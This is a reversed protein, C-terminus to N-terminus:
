NQKTFVKRVIKFFNPFIVFFITISFGLWTLVFSLIVNFKDNTSLMIDPYFSKVVIIILAFLVAIFIMVAGFINFSTFIIKKITIDEDVNAMSQFLMLKKLLDMKDKSNGIISKLREQDKADILRFLIDEIEISDRESVPKIIEIMKGSSSGYEWNSKTQQYQGHNSIRQFIFNVLFILWSILILMGLYGGFETMPTNTFFTIYSLFVTITFFILYILSNTEFKRSIKFLFDSTEKGPKIKDFVWYDIKLKKSLLDPDFSSTLDPNRFLFFSIIILLTVSIYVLYPNLLPSSEMGFIFNSLIIFLLSYSIAISFLNNVMKFEIFPIPFTSNEFERGSINRVNIDTSKKLLYFQLCVFFMVLGVLLFYKLVRDPYGSENLYKYLIILVFLAQLGPLDKRILKLNLYRILFSGGTLFIITISINIIENEVIGNKVLWLTLFASLLFIILIEIKSIKTVLTYNKKLSLRLSFVLISLIGLSFISANSLAFGTYFKDFFDILWFRNVVTELNETNSFPIQGYFIILLYISYIIFISLVDKFFRSSTLGLIIRNILINLKSEESYKPWNLRSIADNQDSNM